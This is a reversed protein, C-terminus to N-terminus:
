KKKKKYKFLKRTFIFEGIKHGVMNPLIIIKKYTIGNYVYFTIGIFEKFLILNKNKIKISNINNLKINILLKLVEKTLKM